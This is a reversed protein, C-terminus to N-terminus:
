AATPTDGDTEEPENAPGPETWGDDAEVLAAQEVLAEHIKARPARHRYMAILESVALEFDKVPREEEVRVSSSRLEGYTMGSM